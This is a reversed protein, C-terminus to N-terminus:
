NESFEQINGRRDTPTTECYFKGIYVIDTIAFKTDNTSHSM